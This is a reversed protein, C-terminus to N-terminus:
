LNRQLYRRYIPAPHDRSLGYRPLLVLPLHVIFKHVSREWTTHVRPAGEGALTFPLLLKSGTRILNGYNTGELRAFRRAYHRANELNTMGIKHENTKEPANAWSCSRRGM